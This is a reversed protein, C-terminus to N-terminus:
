ELKKVLGRIAARKVPGFHRSDTSVPVNDGLLFYEDPGLPRAMKWPQPLGVPDLYYVDRYIAVSSIQMHGRSAGFAFPTPSAIRPGHGPEYPQEFLAIGDASVRISGDCIELELSDVGGHSRLYPQKRGGESVDKGDCRVAITGNNTDIEVTWYRWGDHGRMAFLGNFTGEVSMSVDCVDNLQRSLSQNYSDDDLIGTERIAPSEHTPQHHYKLWQIARADEDPPSFEFTNTASSNTRRWSSNETDPIWRTSLVELDRHVLTRVVPRQWQDKKVLRGGIFIEGDRIAIQEGPFGVIRKVGLKGRHSPVTFAVVDFREPEGSQLGASDIRVLDGPLVEVGASDSHVHGCNACILRDPIPIDELDFVFKFKCNACVLRGHKGFLTEAMSPGVIRVPKYTHYGLLAGLGIVIGVGLLAFLPWLWPRRKTPV